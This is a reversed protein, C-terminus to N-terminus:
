LITSLLTRHPLGKRDSQSIEEGAPRSLVSQVFPSLISPHPYKSLCINGGPCVKKSFKNERLNFLLCQKPLLEIGFSTAKVRIISFFRSRHIGIRQLDRRVEEGM